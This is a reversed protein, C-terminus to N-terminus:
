HGIAYAWLSKVASSAFSYPKTERTKVDRSFIHWRASSVACCIAVLEGIATIPIIPPEM